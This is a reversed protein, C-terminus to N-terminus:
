GEVSKPEVARPQPAGGPMLSGFSMVPYRWNLALFIVGVGNGVLWLTSATPAIIAAVGCLMLLIRDPWTLDRRNTVQVLEGSARDEYFIQPTGTRHSIFILKTGARDYAPVFFFPHHHINPYDTIQRLSRGSRADTLVRAERPSRAGKGFRSRMAPATVSM